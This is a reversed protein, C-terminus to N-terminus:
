DLKDSILRALDYVEYPKTLVTEIDAMGHSELVKSKDYGTTFICKIEPSIKRIELLTEVGGLEPMVVDLILLKIKYQHTLFATIAERGNSAVIINYKLSELIERVTNILDNDDDVLLITEGKGEHIDETIHIPTVTEDTGETILPLYIEFSTGDSRSSQLEIIGKHSQVTGYVMSLGLGTGKGVEKTTFFPEFVRELNDADIGPGNDAITILAFETHEAEPNRDQFLKDAVYKKLTISIIPKEKGVLADRANNVLNFLMQQLQNADAYVYMAEESVSYNLTINEPISVEHLKVTEKIFSPLYLQQKTTINKRSFAMLQKIMESARTALTEIVEAKAFINPQDSARKKILYLNGIIGALTNNFDHAIGGVLTGIAEMKQSQQLREELEEYEQLNQQLGIFHSIRGDEDFIPSINLIAPFVSGDKRKDVIRGQWTEGKKITTWMERYFRRNQEGSNLIRPNVGIVEDVTYGTITCFAPNVYEIIGECDTIIISEGAQEIAQSLKRIKENAKKQESLDRIFATFQPYEDTEIVILSLEIPFERGDKHLATTEIRKGLLPAKGSQLYHVIGKCHKERFREPIITESLRKGIVEQANFGFTNEAAINFSVIHEEHDITIISDLAMSVSEKMRAEARQADAEARRKNSVARVLLWGIIMALLLSILSWLIIIGRTNALMADLEARSDFSIIKWVNSRQVSSQYEPM